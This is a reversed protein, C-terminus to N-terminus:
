GTRLATFGNNKAVWEFDGARAALSSNGRLSWDQENPRDTQDTENIQNTKNIENFWVLWVFWIFWFFTRRESGVLCLSLTPPLIRARRETLRYSLRYLM